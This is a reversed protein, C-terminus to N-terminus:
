CEGRGGGGCVKINEDSSFEIKQISAPNICSDYCTMRQQQKTQKKAKKSLQSVSSHNDTVFVNVQEHVVIQVTLCNQNQHFM